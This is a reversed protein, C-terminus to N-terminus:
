KSKSQCKLVAALFEDEEMLRGKLLIEPSVLGEAVLRYAMNMTSELQQKDWAAGSAGEDYADIMLTRIIKLVAAVTEDAGCLENVVNPYSYGLFLPALAKFQQPYEGLNPLTFRTRGQERFLHAVGNALTLDAMQAEPRDYSFIRLNETVRRGIQSEEIGKCALAGEIASSFRKPEIDAIRVWINDWDKLGFSLETAVRMQYLPYTVCILNVNDSVEYHVLTEKILQINEATSTDRPSMLLKRLLGKPIGLMLMQRLYMRYESNKRIKFKPSFETLNQNDQLGLFMVGYPLAKHNRIYHYIAEAAKVGSEPAGSFVVLIDKRSGERYPIHRYDYSVVNRDGYRLVEGCDGRGFQEAALITAIEEPYLRYRPVGHLGASSIMQRCYEKKENLSGDHRQLVDLVWKIANQWDKFEQVTHGRKKFGPFASMQFDVKEGYKANRVIVKALREYCTIQNM